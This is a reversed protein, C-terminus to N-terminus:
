DKGFIKKFVKLFGGKKEKENNKKKDNSEKGTSKAAVPPTKTDKKLDPPPQPPRPADTAHTETATKVVPPAELKKPAPANKEADTASSGHDAGEAALAAAKPNPAPEASNSNSLAKDKKKMEPLVAAETSASEPEANAPQAAANPASEVAPAPTAPAPQPQSNVVPSSMRNKPLFLISGATILVAGILLGAGLLSWWKNREQPSGERTLRAGCMDCFNLEDGFSENCVSCTKM